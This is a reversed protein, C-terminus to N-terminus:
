RRDVAAQTESRVLFHWVLAHGLAVLAVLLLAEVQIPRLGVLDASAPLLGVLAVLLHIAVTGARVATLAPDDDAVLLRLSTAAGVVAIVIFAIRWVLPEDVGGVQAFLGMLAPLLFAVYVGAVARRRVPDQVWSVDRLTVGWWLGVLTFNTASFVAYFTSVDM